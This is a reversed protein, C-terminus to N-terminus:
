IQKLFVGNVRLLIIWVRVLDNDPDLDHLCEIQTAIRLTKIM